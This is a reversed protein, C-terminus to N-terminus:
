FVGKLGGPQAVGWIVFKPEFGKGAKDALSIERNRPLIVVNGPYLRGLIAFAVLPNEVPIVHVGKEKTTLLSSDPTELISVVNHVVISRNPNPGSSGNYDPDGTMYSYRHGRSIQGLDVAVRKGSRLEFRMELRCVQGVHSDDVLSISPGDPIPM